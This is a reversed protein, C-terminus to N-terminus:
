YSILMQSKFHRLMIKILEWATIIIIIIIIIITIIIIGASLQQERM